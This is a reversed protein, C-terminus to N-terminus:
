SNRAKRIRNYEAIGYHGYIKTRLMDLVDQILDIQLVKRMRYPIHGSTNLKKLYYDVVDNVFVEPPQDDYLGSHLHEEFIRYLTDDPSISM